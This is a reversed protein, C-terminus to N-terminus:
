TSKPKTDQIQKARIKDIYIILEYIYKYDQKEIEYMDLVDKFGILNKGIYNGNVYDWNDQLNTYINLAEQAELPLDELEIPMESDLPTNGLMECMELYREKTM